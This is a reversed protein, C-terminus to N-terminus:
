VGGEIYFTEIASQYDNIVISYECMHLWGSLSIMHTTRTLNTPLRHVFFFFLVFIYIYLSFMISCCFLLSVCAMFVILLVNRIVWHVIVIALSFIFTNSSLYCISISIIDSIFCLKHILFAWLCINPM